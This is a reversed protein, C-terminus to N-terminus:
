IEVLLKLDDLTLAKASDAGELFTDALDRKTKHLRLIKEEITHQSILHYVTVNQKQGIRYARDTAQQEIAPNWWPDLHIVYNAGTLNLGLGGAKLSVVFVQKQGEQFEQVMKSRRRMPTSGDLYFYEVGIEDLAATVNSLFGTFQSFVLIRNGASVIDSVLETFAIVKSSPLTWSDNVLSMACAAQRLRTIEALANVNVKSQNELSQRVNERMSEYALMEADTLEVPYLIDTKDPLEAVVQSKTRRLIFPQLIKKLSTLDAEQSNIYKRSFQEFSGLLGPNLFQFLNWLEGLYNQVPTGTLIVRSSAKLKMASASMKTQRNKITHAEDLCVVNWNIGSLSEEELPLLGYTTLVVDYSQLSALMESRDSSHNLIKVNMSPAFRELERSWNLVVSAPAVVLSPGIEAKHLLFAITQVTKGLGMDDALCAGAGWHDLRVMWRFGEYQYDRLTANLAAPVEPELTSANAVKDMLSQIGGDTKINVKGGRVLEALPGINFVSIRSGSKNSESIAALRKLQKKLSDTLSLYEDDALRVYRGRLQGSAILGLLAELSMTDSGYKVEGEVEFWSERSIVNASVGSHSVQQHLRIKKGEPWEIAFHDSHVGVWEVLELMEEPSLVMESFEFIDTEFADEVYDALVKASSRENKLNRVVQYRSGDSEDYITKDGKGPECTIKGGPLPRVFVSLYFEQDSPTIQLIITSDAERSELSSGGELLESHVEIHKAMLPLLQNLAEQSRIPLKTLAMLSSLLQKQMDTLNIVAYHTRDIKRVVVKGLFPRNYGDYAIANSSVSFNDKGQKVEIYPKEESIEVPTYPAYNGTYVKDTQVLYPFATEVSISHDYHMRSALAINKDQEDMCELKCNYFDYLSIQKGASWNGSKLRKQLRFSLYNDGRMYYAIREAKVDLVSQGLSESDAELMSKMQQLVLEWKEVRVISKLVPPGGYVSQLGEAESEDIDNMWPSLEHRLIAFGPKSIPIINKGDHQELPLGFYGFLIATLYTCLESNLSQGLYGLTRHIMKEDMATGVCEALVAAPRLDVEESVVKKNLFQTVKTRTEETDAKKYALILYFCLLSNVFINKDKARKNRIKLSKQFLDLSASIKGSYLNEIADCALSYISPEGGSPVVHTGDHCFRVFALYDLIEFAAPLCGFLGGKYYERIIREVQNLEDESVTARYAFESIKSNALNKFSVEPLSYLLNEFERVCFYPRVYESCEEPWNGKLRAEAGADPRGEALENALTWMFEEDSDRLRRFKDLEAVFDKEYVILHLAIIFFYKPELTRCPRWYDYYGDYILGGDELIDLLRIVEHKKYGYYKAYRQVDADTVTSVQYACFLLLRQVEHSMGETLLEYYKETSELLVM